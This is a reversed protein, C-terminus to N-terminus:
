AVKKTLTFCIMIRTRFNVFSRYGYSTRKILKIKNNMGEVFGNTFVSRFTNRIPKELRLFTTIVKKLELDAEEWYNEMLSFFRKEDRYRVCSTLAQILHYQECLHQDLELIDELVDLSSTHKQLTYCYFPKTSLKEQPKLLLKWYKKLLKYDKTKSDFKKMTQIRIKNLARTLHQVIHFKDIIIEARPFVAKILQIYPEYMDIVVAKVRERVKLPYRHFYRILSPLRRDEVIDILEKHLVDCLIFSMAGDANKVSKFEDIGLFSPLYNYSRKIQLSESHLIRHVTQHSVGYEKAVIWESITNQAKLLIALKVPKSIFCGPDVLPTTASFTSVCDKCLYRQKRLELFTECETVKNLRVLSTKTGHKIISGESACHPCTTILPSLKASIVKRTGGPYPEKKFLDELIEIGTDELDLLSKIYHDQSM